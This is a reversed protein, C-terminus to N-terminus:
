GAEWETAKILSIAKKQTGLLCNLGIGKPPDSRTQRKSADSKGDWEASERLAAQMRKYAKGTPTANGIRLYDWCHDPWLGFMRADAMDVM